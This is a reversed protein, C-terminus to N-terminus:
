TILGLEKISMEAYNVTDGEEMTFNGMWSRSQNLFHSWQVCSINAIQNTTHLFKNLIAEKYRCLKLLKGNSLRVVAKKPDKNFDVAEKEVKSLKWYGSSLLKVTSKLSQPDAIM